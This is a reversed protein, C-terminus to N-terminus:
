PPRVDRLKLGHMEIASSTSDNETPADIRSIPNLHSFSFPQSEWQALFSNWARRNQAEELSNYRVVITNTEVNVLLERNSLELLSYLRKSSAAGTRIQVQRYRRNEDRAQM